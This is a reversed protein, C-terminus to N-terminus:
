DLKGLGVANGHRDRLRVMTGGRNMLPKKLFQHWVWVGNAGPQGCSVDNDTRDIPTCVVLGDASMVSDGEARVLTITKQTKPLYWQGLMEDAFRGPRELMLRRIRVAGEGPLQVQGSTWWMWEDMPRTFDPKQYAFAVVANGADARWQASQPAGALSRGGAYERLPITAATALSAVGQSVYAASGMHFTPQQNARYNFVQLIATNGQIDLALGRGPKGTLEDEVIWTGNFPMLTNIYEIGYCTIQCVGGSSFSSQMYNQQILQTWETNGAWRRSGAETAGMDYGTIAMPAGAAGNIQVSGSLDYGALVLRLGSVTASVVVPKGYIDLVQGDASPRCSMRTQVGELQCDLYQFIQYYNSSFGVTAEKLALRFTNTETRTLEGLWDYAVDGQANLVMLGLIRMGTQMRPNTVGPEASSVLFREIDAAPEGPFQVTGKLGNSFSMTVNGLSQDEVADRASGGFSRGGTYRMLPATVSDGDMTGTATYFTAEGNKEYGFVQMFFTNGQVDIALGRGPKGDLESSVIWTGAQPTFDRAAHAGASALLAASALASGIWRNLM